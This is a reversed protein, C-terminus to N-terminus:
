KPKDADKEKKKMLDKPLRVSFVAILTLFLISYWMWTFSRNLLEGMGTIFIMFFFTLEIPRIDKSVASMLGRAGLLSRVSWSQAGEPEKTPIDQENSLGM